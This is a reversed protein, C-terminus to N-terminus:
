FTVERPESEFSLFTATADKLYLVLTNGDDASYMSKLDPYADLMSQKAERRNDEVATAEVRIWQNGTMACIAVKPNKLMQKAVNKSRGTQIYLQGDFINVTGFPRVKPLNGDVTAIYYTGCKKLFDYVEKRNKQEMNEQKLPEQGFVSISLLIAAIVLNVQKM